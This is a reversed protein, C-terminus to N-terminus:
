ENLIALLENPNNILQIEKPLNLNSLLEGRASVHLRIGYFNSELNKFITEMDAQKRKKSFFTLAHTPQCNIVVDTLNNFPVSTGLYIVNAGSRRILYNSFLLGIEHDEHECLFLLWTQKPEISIPISDIAAFLKQRILNSFFHEQVPMMENKLWLMGIRNLLPYIVRLYSEVMGMKTTAHSFIQEFMKQNYTSIAILLQNVLTESIGEDDSQTQILQEVKAKIEPETMRSVKSIKIGNSILTSVNLIKKLETDSYMRINSETRQPTLIGYRQEWIRITHAKINSLNELSKISYYSM